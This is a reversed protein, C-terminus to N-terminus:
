PIQDYPKRRGDRDLVGKFIFRLRAPNVEFRDDFGARILEGHSISGTWRDGIPTTNTMKAFTKDVM